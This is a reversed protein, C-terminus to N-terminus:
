RAMARVDARVDDRVRRARDLAEHGDALLRRRGAAAIDQRRGAERLYLRIKALLEDADRFYEAERGPAFLSTLDDTHQALMFTGAAPIEFCRRTYTDNNLTSLFVLCIKSSAVALNYDAKYLPRIEGFRRRLREANRARNWLTGWLRFDFDGADLLRDVVDSRGDDEWHGIFSVDSAYPSAAIEGPAVPHNLERIYFSRLVDARPCGRRVLEGVNAQRYAYIRDYHVIGGLFHRWFYGPYRAGFPDDNNWGVVYCGLQRIRRLTEPYLHTGRFVFVVDPRTERVREVLARNMRSMRPGFRFKDQAKATRALLAAIPDPWAGAEFFECERFGDVEEGLEKLRWFFPEAYIHSYWSEVLLFKM